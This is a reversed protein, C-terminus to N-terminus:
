PHKAEIHDDLAARSSFKAHCEDCALPLPGSYPEQRKTSAEKEQHYVKRAYEAACAKCTGGLGSKTVKSKLFDDLVKVKGCKNCTKRGPATSKQEQPKKRYPGRPKVVITSAPTTHAIDAPAKCEADLERLLRIATQFNKIREELIEIAGKMEM